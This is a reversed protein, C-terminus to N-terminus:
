VTVYTEKPCKGESMNTESMQTTSQKHDTQHRTRVYHLGHLTLKLVTSYPKSLADIFFCCCSLRMTSGTSCTGTGECRPLLLVRAWPQPGSGAPGEACLRLGSPKVHRTLVSSANLLDLKWCLGTRNAPRSIPRLSWYTAADSNSGIEQLDKDQSTLAGHRHTEVLRDLIHLSM